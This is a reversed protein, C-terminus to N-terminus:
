KVNPITLKFVAGTRLTDKYEVKENYAIITGDLHNEIIDKTMYLGIGTGLSQHKTTFYPEFIRNIIDEPIGGANDKIYLTYCNDELVSSLIVVRDKLTSHEFADKANNLINIIVQIFENYLAKFLFNESEEIILEIDNSKYSSSILSKINEVLDKSSFERISSDMKFFNQFDNITQSLYQTTDVIADMTTDFEKDDLVGLEKQIKIGSAATSITSLPQRWQHAINRLMEGMSAMKSQNILAQESKKNEEELKIMETIDEGSSILGSIDREDNYVYARRWLIMRREGNKCVIYYQLKEVINSEQNITKLYLDIANERDYECVFNNFWNKGLISEEGYGLVECTKRNVLTINGQNNLAVIMVDVLDLYLQMTKTQELITDQIKKRETINNIIVVSSIWKGQEDRIHNVFIDAWLIVGNKRIYRKELTFSDTGDKQSEEYIILDKELDNKHTIDKFSLNLLENESYGLMECFSKNVEIFSGNTNLYVIGVKSHEFISLYHKELKDIVKKQEKIITNLQSSDQTM